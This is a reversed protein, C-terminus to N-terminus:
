KDKDKLSNRKKKSGIFCRGGFIVRNKNQELFQESNEMEKFAHSQSCCPLVNWRGLTVRFMGALQAKRGRQSYKRSNEFLGSSLIFGVEAM